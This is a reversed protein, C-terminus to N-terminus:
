WFDRPCHETAMRIKNMMAMGEARVKCGCGKCRQSKEDYWECKSCYVTHLHGVEADTRTPRGAAIWSKVAQWYFAALKPVTPFDPIDELNLTAGVQTLAGKCRDCEAPTTPKKAIACYSKVQLLGDPKRDNSFARFPCPYWATDFTWPDNERPVYGTPCEPPTECSRKYHVEEDDGYVPQKYTANEPAQLKCPQHSLLVQRLTCRACTQEDIEQRYTDAGGHACRYLERKEGSQEKRVIHRRKQCTIYKM